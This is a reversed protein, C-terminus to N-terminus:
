PAFIHSLLNKIGTKNGSILARPLETAANLRSFLHTKAVRATKNWGLNKSREAVESFLVLEQLFKSGDM